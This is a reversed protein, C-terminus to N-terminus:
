RLFEVQGTAISYYAGVCNLKRQGIRQRIFPSKQINQVYYRVNKKVATELETTNKVAPEIMEAIHEIDSINKDLVAKVAGCSEHGLVVILSSGLIKVSYDISDLEIPGVVNGAVRVVFLDGMDQDFIIEPTVRSDSCSVITAFPAQGEVLSERRAASHDANLTLDQAYRGNGEKLRQLADSPSMGFGTQILCFLCFLTRKMITRM